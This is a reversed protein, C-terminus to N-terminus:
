QVPLITTTIYFFVPNYILPHFLEQNLPFTTSTTNTFFIQFKLPNADFRFYCEYASKEAINNPYTM